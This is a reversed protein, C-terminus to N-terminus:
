VHRPGLFLLAALGASVNHPERDIVTFGRTSCGTTFDEVSVDVTVGWSGPAQFTHSGMLGRYLRTSWAKSGDYYLKGKSIEYCTVGVKDIQWTQSKVVTATSLASMGSVLFPSVDQGTSIIATVTCASELNNQSINPLQRTIQEICSPDLSTRTEVSDWEPATSPARATQPSYALMCAIGLAFIFISSKKSTSIQFGIYGGFNTIDFLFGSM